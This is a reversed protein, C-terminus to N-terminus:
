RMMVLMMVKGTGGDHSELAKGIVTGPAPDSSRMAHGPTGSAVLLDGARIAGYSADVKVPVRGALALRAFHREFFAELAALELQQDLESTATRSAPNPNPSDASSELALARAQLSPHRQYVLAELEAREDEFLEAAGPGWVDALQAVSFAGGGLVFGAETSVVGVVSADSERDALLVANPARPDVRIVDGAEIVAQGKWFSEALDFGSNQQVTGSVFLNSATGPTSGLAMQTDSNANGGDKWIHTLFGQASNNNTDTVYTMDFHSTGLRLGNPGLALFSEDSGGGAGGQSSWGVVAAPNPIPFGNDTSGTKKKALFVEDDIELRGDGRVVWVDDGNPDIGLQQLGGQQTNRISLSFNTASDINVFDANVTTFNGTGGGGAPTACIPTGNFDVSTMFQGGPCANSIRRQIQGYDPQLTISGSSGGGTIGNAGNVSTISSSGGGGGGSSTGCSVNGSSDITQIAQNTGTCQGTVRRQIQNYDPQLTISGSSGGGTIGNTGNVSSISGGGGGGGSINWDSRCDNGFQGGFCLTKVKVRQQNDITFVRGKGVGATATGLDNIIFEGNDVGSANVGFVYSKWINNLNNQETRTILFATTDVDRDMRFLAQRGSSHFARQPNDTGIGIFGSITFNGNQNFVPSDINTVQESCPLEQGAVQNQSAACVANAAASEELGNGLVASPVTAALTILVLSVPFFRSARM